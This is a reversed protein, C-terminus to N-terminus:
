PKTKAQAAKGDLSKELEDLNQYSLPALVGKVAESALGIDVVLADSDLEVRSFEVSTVYTAGHLRQAPGFIEGVFSHAIMVSERVGLRYM